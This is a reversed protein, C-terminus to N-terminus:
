FEQSIEELAEYNIEGEKNIINNEILAAATRGYFGQLQWAMGTKILKSFMKVTSIDDLEGQEFAIIQDISIHDEQM